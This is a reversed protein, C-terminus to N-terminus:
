NSPLSSSAARWQTGSSPAPSATSGSTDPGTPYPMQFVVSFREQGRWFEGSVAPARKARLRLVTSIVAASSKVPAGAVETLVDGDAVGIGLGSVGAVQLGAPREGKQEVFRSAPVKAVLSLRLVQEASVFVRKPAAKQAKTKSGRQAKSPEAYGVQAVDLGSPESTAVQRDLADWNVRTVQPQTTLAQGLLAGLSWLWAELRPLIAHETVRCAGVTCAFVLAGVLATGRPRFRPLTTSDRM